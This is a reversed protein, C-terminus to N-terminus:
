KKPTKLRDPLDIGLQEIVLDVKEETRDWKDAPSSGGNNRFMSETNLLSRELRKFFRYMPRVVGRYIVGCAGIVGAIWIIERGHEEWAVALFFGVAAFAGNM